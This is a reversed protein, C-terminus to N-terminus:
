KVEVKRVVGGGRPAAQMTAELVGDKFSAEASDIIAGEPLPLTRHFSGYRRESRYVGERDETTEERREGEITIRDETVEIKVDEKCLGPLDARVVFRDGRQFCEIAPTWARAFGEERWPALWARGTWADEFFRDMDETLRRMLGFPNLSPWPDYRGEPRALGRESREEKAKAM